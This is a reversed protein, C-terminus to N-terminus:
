LVSLLLPDADFAADDVDDDSVLEDDVSAPADEADSEDFPDDDADVLEDEAVADSLFGVPLEDDPPDVVPL